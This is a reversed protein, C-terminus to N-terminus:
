QVVFQAFYVNKVADKGLIRSVRAMIEDRLRIKGEMTIVDELTQSSLLLIIDNRIRPLLKDAKDKVEDNVLELTITAKVFHRAKPDALNVVFPDMSFMVGIEPSSQKVPQSSEGQQQEQQIEQAIEQDSPGSFLFFYAGAGCLLLVVVGIIIFLLLPKKKKETGEAQEKGKKEKAM